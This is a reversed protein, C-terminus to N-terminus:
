GVKKATDEKGVEDIDADFIALPQGSLVDVHTEGPGRSCCM